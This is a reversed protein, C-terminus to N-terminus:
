TTNKSVRANVPSAYRARGHPSRPTSSRAVDNNGSHKTRDLQVNSYDRGEQRGGLQVFIM